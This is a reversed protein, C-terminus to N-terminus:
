VGGAFWSHPLNVVQQRCQIASQYEPHAPNFVDHTLFENPKYTGWNQLRCYEVQDADYAMSMDYFSKMQQYNKQQVVM